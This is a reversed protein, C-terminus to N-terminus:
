EEDNELESQDKVETVFSSLSSSTTEFSSAAGPDAYLATPSCFSCLSSAMMVDEVTSSRFSAQQTVVGMWVVWRREEDDEDDDEVEERLSSRCPRFCRCGLLGRVGRGLDFRDMGDIDHDGAAYAFLFSSPAVSSVAKGNDVMCSAFGHMVHDPFKGDARRDEGFNKVVLHFSEYTTTIITIILISNM